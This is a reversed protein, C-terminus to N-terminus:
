ADLLFELASHGRAARDRTIRWAGDRSDLLRGIQTRLTRREKASLAGAAAFPDPILTLLFAIDSWDRDPNQRVPITTAAAKLLIAGLLAPRRVIGIRSDVDVQVSEAYGLARRAGPVEVTRAPPTTTLDSRESLHDPALVDFTVRGPRGEVTRVFRHGIGDASPGELALGNAELWRCARRISDVRVRVDIVIDIDETARPPQVGAEQAHLWVLQGGVLCWDDALRAALDLLVVWGERQASTM